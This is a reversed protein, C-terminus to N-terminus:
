SFDPIAYSLQSLQLALEAVAAVSFSTKLGYRGEFKSSYERVSLCDAFDLLCDAFDLLVTWCVLWCVIRLFDPASM